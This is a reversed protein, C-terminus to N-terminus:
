RRRLVVADQHHNIGEPVQRVVEFYQGWVRQIYGTKHYSTQYFDPLGDVRLKGAAGRVFLFGTEDLLRRQAKAESMKAIVPEGHVTFV